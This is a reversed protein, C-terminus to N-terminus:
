LRRRVLLYIAGIACGLVLWGIVAITWALLNFKTQQWHRFSYLNWYRFLRPDCKAGLWVLAIFPFLVVFKM